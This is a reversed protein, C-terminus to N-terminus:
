ARATCRYLCWPSSLRKPRQLSSPLWSECIMALGVMGDRASWRLLPKACSVTARMISELRLCASGKTDGAPRIEYGKPDAFCFTAQGRPNVLRELLGDALLTSSSM